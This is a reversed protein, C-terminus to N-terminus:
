SRPQQPREEGAQHDEAPLTAAADLAKDVLVLNGLIHLLEVVLGQLLNHHVVLGGVGPSHHLGGAPCAVATVGVCQGVESVVETSLFLRHGESLVVVLLNSCSSQWRFFSSRRDPFSYRMLMVAMTTAM